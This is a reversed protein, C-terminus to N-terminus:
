SLNDVEPAVVEVLPEAREEAVGAVEVAVGGAAVEVVGETKCPLVM